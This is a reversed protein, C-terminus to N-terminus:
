ELTEGHGFVALFAIKVCAFRVYQRVSPRVSPGLSANRVSADLFFGCLPTMCSLEHCLKSPMRMHVNQELLTGECDDVTQRCIPNVVIKGKDGDCRTILKREILIERNAEWIEFEDLHVDSAQNAADEM